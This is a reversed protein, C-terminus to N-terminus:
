DEKEEDSIFGIQRKKKSPPAMLHRIANIIM